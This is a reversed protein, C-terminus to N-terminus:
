KAEVSKELAELASLQARKGQTEETMESERIRKPTTM